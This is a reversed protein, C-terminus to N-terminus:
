GAADALPFHRLVTFSDATTETFLAERVYAEADLHEDRLAAYCATGRRSTRPHAVTLHAPFDVPTMPEALLRRRMEAWGGDIDDVAVFAGGRGEDEAFVAGLRLRFPTVTDLQREARNLLLREDTIEEPYTVTVHAPVVRAM